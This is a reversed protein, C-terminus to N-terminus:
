ENFSFSKLATAFLRTYIFEWFKKSEGFMEKYFVRWYQNVYDNVLQNLDGDPFLGEIVTYMRQVTQVIDIDKIELSLKDQEFRRSTSIKM